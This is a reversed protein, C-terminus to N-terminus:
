KVRLRTPANPFPAIVGGSGCDGVKLDNRAEGAIANYVRPFSEVSSWPLPNGEADLLTQLPPTATQAVAWLHRGGEPDPYLWIGGPFLERVTGQAIDGGQSLRDLMRAVRQEVSEQPATRPQPKTQSLSKLQELEASLAKLEAGLESALGGSKIAAVLNARQRELEAIRLSYDVTMPQSSLWRTEIESLRRPLEPSAMFDFFVREIRERPVSLSVSCAGDGGEHHSSCQYRTANSLAFSARCAECRLSGSLLYKTPQRVRRLGGKVRVGLDRSQQEQRAKVHQWLEDSVIRLREDTREVLAEELLRQKRVASDAASRRWESRGWIIRGIYRPNNLIGTGRKVDGHIASALWKGDKRRKTRKWTAGPSPVGELNLRAAINRPSMGDAYLQFIRRV